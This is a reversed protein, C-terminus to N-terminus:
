EHKETSTYGNNAGSRKDPVEVSSVKEAHGEFGKSGELLRLEVVDFGRLAPFNIVVPDYMAEWDSVDDGKYLMANALGRKAQKM